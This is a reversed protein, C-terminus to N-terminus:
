ESPEIDELEDDPVDPFDPMGPEHTPVDPFKPLHTSGHDGLADEVERGVGGLKSLVDGNGGADKANLVGGLVSAGASKDSDVMGGLLSAGGTEGAMAVSVAKAAMDSIFDLGAKLNGSAIKAANEDGSAAAKTTAEALSQLMAQGSMDRFAQAQLTQALPGFGSPDPLQQLPDLKASSPDLAGPTTNMEQVTPTAANLPDINTPLIPIPSDSWNWFRSLDIKEASVAQGLVAEGFVGGTPVAIDAQVSALDQDPDGTFPEIFRQKYAQTEATDTFRWRYGVYNGTVAVPAPDIQEYIPQGRFSNRRRALGLVEGPSLSLWVAQNFFLRNDHLPGSRGGALVLRAEELWRLQRELDDLDRQVAALGDNLRRRKQQESSLLSAATEQLQRTEDDLPKLQHQMQQAAFRLLPQPTGEYSDIDSMVIARKANLEAMRSEIQDREVKFEEPLSSVRDRVREREGQLATIDERTRTMRDDISSVESDFHQIAQALGPKGASIAADILVARYKPILEQVDRVTFPLFIVREADVVRTRLSFVEVVEFYMVSLAHMHNYNAVVRTTLTEDESQAVERVVSARRTRAAEAHRQTTANISQNSEMSLNRDGDSRTVATSVTSSSGSSHSNGSILANVSGLDVGLRAGTSSTGSSSSKSASSAGSSGSTHESLSGNQIEGVARNQQDSATTSDSQSVSESDTARTTHNWHTMAIQTVEGPALAVSHLLNGLALGRGYWGQEHFLIVGEAPTDMSDPEAHLVPDLRGEPEIGLMLNIQDEITLDTATADFDTPELGDATWRQALGAVSEPDPQFYKAFASTADRPLTAGITLVDGEAAHAAGDSGDLEYEVRLANPTGPDPNGFNEESAAVSLHRGEVMEAVTETVNTSTVAVSEGPPLVGYAAGKINLSRPLDLMENENITIAGRMGDIIFDVRLRKPIGSAPDTFAGNSALMQLQQTRGREEQPEKIESAVIDTVDITAGDPLDGYVAREIEIRGLLDIREDENRTIIADAGSGWSYRLRLQKARGPAPDGFTSSDVAFSLTNATVIDRITSGVDIRPTASVDGWTALKIVLESSNKVRLVYLLPSRLRAWMDHASMGGGLATMTVSQFHVTSSVPIDGFQPILAKPTPPTPWGAAGRETVSAAATEDSEPKPVVSTM